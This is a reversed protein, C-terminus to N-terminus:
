KRDDNLDLKRQPTPIFASCNLKLYTKKKKDFILHVFDKQIPVQNFGHFFSCSSKMNRVIGIM